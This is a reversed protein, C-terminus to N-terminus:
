ISVKLYTVLRMIRHKRSRSSLKLHIQERNSSFTREAYIKNRIVNKNNNNLQQTMDSEKTVGHVPTWWGGRDIANGLCSYQLSNGSRVRPSRGSGPISGVDVANAPLNKVM